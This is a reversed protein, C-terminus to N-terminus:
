GCKRLSYTHVGVKLGRYPDNNGTMEVSRRESACGLVGVFGATGLKLADRRTLQQVYPRMKNDSGLDDTAQASVRGRMDRLRITNGGLILGSMPSTTM